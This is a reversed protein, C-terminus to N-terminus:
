KPVFVATTSVGSMGGSDEVHRMSALPPHYNMFSLTVRYKVNTTLGTANVTMTSLVSAGGRHPDTSHDTTSVNRWCGGGAESWYELDTRYRVRCTAKSGTPCTFSFPASGTYTTATATGSLQGLSLKTAKCVTSQAYVFLCIASLSTFLVFALLHRLPPTRMETEPFDLSKSRTHSYSVALFYCDIDLNKSKRSGYDSVPPLNM